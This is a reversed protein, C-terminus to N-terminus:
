SAPVLNYRQRWGVFVFVHVTCTNPFTESQEGQDCKTYAVMIVIPQMGSKVYLCVCLSIALKAEICALVPPINQEWLVIVCTCTFSRKCTCVSGPLTHLRHPLCCKCLYQIWDAEPPCEHGLGGEFSPQMSSPCPAAVLDSHTFSQARTLVFDRCFSPHTPVAPPM